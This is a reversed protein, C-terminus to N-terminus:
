MAEVADADPLEELGITEDGNVAGEDAPVENGGMM